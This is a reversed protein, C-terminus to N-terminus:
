EIRDQWEPPLYRRVASHRKIAEPTDRIDVVSGVQRQEKTTLRRKIHYAVGSWEEWQGSTEDGIGRLADLARNKLFTKITIDRLVLRTGISASAHWVPGGYGEEM